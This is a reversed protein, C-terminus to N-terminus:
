LLGLSRLKENNREIRELRAKEYDNLERNAEEEQRKQKAEREMIQKKQKQLNAEVTWPNGKFYLNSPIVAGSFQGGTFDESPDCHGSAILGRVVWRIAPILFPKRIEWYKGDVISGLWPPLIMNDIPDKKERQAGKETDNEEREREKISAKLRRQRQIKANLSVMKKHYNERIAEIEVRDNAATDFNKRSVYQIDIKLQSVPQNNRNKAMRPAGRGLTEDGMKEEKKPVEICIWDTPIAFTTADNEIELGSVIANLKQSDEVCLAKNMMKNEGGDYNYDDVYYDEYPNYDDGMGSGGWGLGSETEFQTTKKELSNLIRKKYKRCMEGLGSHSGNFLICNDFILEIDNKFSGRLNVEGDDTNYLGNHLNKELTSLDMPNKVVDFYDPINLAVPDVPDWLAETEYLTYFYKVFNKAVVMSANEEEWQCNMVKCDGEYKIKMQKLDITAWFSDPTLLDEPDPLILVSNPLHGTGVVTGHYWSAAKGSSTEEIKLRLGVKSRCVKNKGHGKTQKQRMKYAERYGYAQAESLFLARPNNETMKEDDYNSDRDDDEERVEAVKFIKKRKVVKGKEKLTVKEGFRDFKKNENRLQEGNKAEVNEEDPCFGVIKAVKGRRQGGGIPIFPPMLVMTGILEHGCNLYKLKDSTPDTMGPAAEFGLSYFSDVVSEPKVQIIDMVLARLSYELAKMSMEYAKLEIEESTMENETQSVGELFDLRNDTLNTSCFERKCRGDRIMAGIASRVKYLDEKDLVSGQQTNNVSEGMDDKIDTPVLKLVDLTTAGNSLYDERTLVSTVTDIMNSGNSNGYYVKNEKARRTRRRRGENLEDDDELLDKMEPVAFYDGGSKAANADKKVKEPAGGLKVLREMEEREEIARNAKEKKVANVWNEYKIIADIFRKEEVKAAKEYVECESKPLGDWMDEIRDNVTTFDVRRYLKMEAVPPSKFNFDDEVLPEGTATSIMPESGQRKEIELFRRVEPMSRIKSGDPAHYYIDAKSGDRRMVAERHWHQAPLNNLQTTLDPNLQRVEKMASPTKEKQFLLYASLPNSPKPLFDIKVLQFKKRKNQNNTSFSSLSPPPSPINALIAVSSARLFPVSVGSTRVELEEESLPQRKTLQTSALNWSPNDKHLETLFIDKFNPWDAYGCASAGGSEKNGVFNTRFRIKGVEETQQQKKDALCILYNQETLTQFADYVTTSNSALVGEIINRPYEALAAAVKKGDIDTAAQAARNKDEQSPGRTSSGRKVFTAMVMAAGHKIKQLAERITAGEKDGGRSDINIQKDWEIEIVAEKSAKLVAAEVVSMTAKMKKNDEVRTMEEVAAKVKKPDYGFEAVSAATKRRGVLDVAIKVEEETLDESYENGDFIVHWLAPSVGREAASWGVITGDIWNNVSPKISLLHFPAPRRCRQKMYKNEESTSWKGNLMKAFLQSTQFSVENSEPSNDAYDVENEEENASANAEEFKRKLPNTASATDVGDVGEMEADVDVGMEELRKEEAVREKEKKLLQQKKEFVKQCRYERIFNDPLEPASPLSYYCEDSGEKEWKTWIEGALHDTNLLM